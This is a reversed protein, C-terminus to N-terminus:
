REIVQSPALPSPQEIPKGEGDHLQRHELIASTELLDLAQQTRIYQEADAIWEDLGAAGPLNSVEAVAPEVRGSEVFWRAREMRKRPAPSPAGARRIVFLESMERRMRTIFGDKESGDFDTGIAALRQRLMDRTLPNQGAAIVTEVANPKAEGFRLRLQDELYGLPMGRDIARRAAFTILLAEARGANGAAAEIQLDLRAMRQELVALRVDMVDQQEANASLADDDGIQPMRVSPTAVPVKTPAEEPSSSVPPAEAQRGLISNWAAQFDVGGRWALAAAAGAGLLFCLLAISLWGRWGMGSRVTPAPPASPAPPLDPSIEPLNETM